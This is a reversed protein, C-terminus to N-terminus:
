ASCSVACATRALKKERFVADSPSEGARVLRGYKIKGDFEGLHREVEWGFDAFGVLEITMRRDRRYQLEPM